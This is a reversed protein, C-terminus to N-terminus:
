KKKKGMATLPVSVAVGTSLEIGAAAAKHLSLDKGDRQKYRTYNFDQMLRVKVPSKKGALSPTMISIGLLAPFFVGKTKDSTGPVTMFNVGHSGTGINAVAGLYLRVYQSLGLWLTIPIQVADVGYNYRLGTGLGLSLFSDQFSLGALATLGRWNMKAEDYVAVQWDVTFNVDFFFRDILRQGTPSYLAGGKKSNKGGARSNGGSDSNGSNSNNASKSSNSNNGGDGSDASNDSGNGYASAVAVAAGGGAKGNKSGTASPNTSPLFRGAGVFRNKWYNENLSSLIVGTNPGDSVASIFQSGGVYLGVHSVSGDGTTAFFVLDAAELEGQKIPDIARYMAKVTRQLPRGTVEQTLFCILGSCDFKNPGEAGRVYPCGIRTKALAVIKERRTAIEEATLTVESQSYCYQPLAVVFTVLAVLFFLRLRTYIIKGVILSIPM